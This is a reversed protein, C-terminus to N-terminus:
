LLEGEAALQIAEHTDAIEHINFGFWDLINRENAKITPIETAESRYDQFVGFDWEDTQPNFRDCRAYFIADSDIIGVIRYLEWQDHGDYLYVAETVKPQSM